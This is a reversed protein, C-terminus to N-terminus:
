QYAVALPITANHQAAKTLPPVALTGAVIVTDRGKSNLVGSKTTAITGSNASHLILSSVTLGATTTLTAPVSVHYAQGAAGTITLVPVTAKGSVTANKATAKTPSAASLAVTGATATGAVTGFSLQSTTSVTLPEILTIAVSNNASTEPTTGAGNKAPAKAAFAHGALASLVLGLAAHRLASRRLQAARVSM